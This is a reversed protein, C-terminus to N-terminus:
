DQVEIKKLAEVNVIAPGITFDPFKIEGSRIKRNLEEVRKPDEAPIVYFDGLFKGNSDTM